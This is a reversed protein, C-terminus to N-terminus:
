SRIRENDLPLTTEMFTLSAEFCQYKRGSLLLPNSFFFEIIRSDDGGMFVVGHFCKEHGMGCINCPEGMYTAHSPKKLVSCRVAATLLLPTSFGTAYYVRDNDSSM